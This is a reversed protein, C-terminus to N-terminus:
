KIKGSLKLTIAVDKSLVGSVISPIEIAHDAFKVNFTAEGTYTGDASVQFTGPVDYHKKM